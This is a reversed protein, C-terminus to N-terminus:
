GNGQELVISAKNPDSRRSREGAHWAGGQRRGCLGGEVASPRFQQGALRNSSFSGFRLDIEGAQQRCTAIEGACLRCVTGGQYAVCIEQRRQHVHGVELPYAALIRRRLGQQAAGHCCMGGARLRLVSKAEREHSTTACALSSAWEATGGREPRLHCAVAVDIGHSEALDATGRFGGRDQACGQHVVRLLTCHQHREGRDLAVTAVQRRCFLSRLPRRCKVGRIPFRCRQQRLEPRPPVAVRGSPASRPPPVRMSLKASLNAAPEPSSLAVMSWDNDM